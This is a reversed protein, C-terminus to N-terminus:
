LQSYKWKWRLKSSFFSLFFICLQIDASGLEAQISLKEKVRRELVSFLAPSPSSGERQFNFSQQQLACEFTILNFNVSWYRRVFLVWCSVFSLSWGSFGWWSHRRATYLAVIFSVTFNITSWTQLYLICVSLQRTIDTLYSEIDKMKM